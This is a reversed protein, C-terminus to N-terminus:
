IRLFAKEFDARRVKVVVPRGHPCTEPMDCDKLERIIAQVDGERLVYGAKIANVCSKKMIKEVNFEYSQGTQISDLINIFFNKDKPQGFLIPVGRLAVELGGFDEIDFGMQKLEETHQLVTSKDKDSLTIIEPEILQQIEVKQAYYAKSFKEYLIREHAAHQDLLLVADANHNEFLLYTKFISGIYISESLLKIIEPVTKEAKISDIEEFYNQQKEYTIPLNDIDERNEYSNNNKATDWQNECEENNTAIGIVKSLLDKAHLTKQEEKGINEINDLNNLKEPKSIFDRTSFSNEDSTYDKYVINNSEQSQITVTSTEEESRKAFLNATELRTNHQLRKQISHVLLRIIQDLNMFKIEKKNPHINVDIEQTPIDLFLVFCPFKGLPILSKYNNEVAKSIAGSFIPRENVFLYQHTRLGRYLRNNSFAGRIKLGEFEEEFYIFNESFDKGLLTYIRENLTQGGKAHFVQKGDRIYKVSISPKSLAAKVIVDSIAGNESTDSKLFNKRVPMNYFLEQVEILTGTPFATEEKSLVQGDEVYLRFGTLQDSTKSVLNVKSVQAISALAEGRFGYSGIEYLDEINELKSTAHPYFALNLDEEAIGTGDDLIRLLKKGGTSTEIVINKANADFSNEILEKIVSAPREIVEGAAIKQITHEDLLNIKGM